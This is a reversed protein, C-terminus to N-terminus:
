SNQVDDAVIVMKALWRGLKIESYEPFNGWRQTKRPQEDEANQKVLNRKRTVDNKITLTRGGCEEPCVHDFM